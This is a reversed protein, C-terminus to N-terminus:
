LKMLMSRVDDCMLAIEVAAAAVAKLRALFTTFILPPPFSPSPLAYKCSYINNRVTVTSIDKIKKRRLVELLKVALWYLVQWALLHSVDKV